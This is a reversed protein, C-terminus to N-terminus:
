CNYYRINKRRKKAIINPSNITNLGKIVARVLNYCNNSGLSKSIIDKIGIVNCIMKVVSGAILGKGSPAPIMLIISSCYKYKIKHHLTRGNRLPIKQINKKAKNIAKLKANIVELAKGLGYGIHGNKDGVVMIVSFSFNRGGKTVKTCKNINILHEVLDM